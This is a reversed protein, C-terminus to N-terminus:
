KSLCEAHVGEFKDPATNELWARAPQLDKIYLDLFALTAHTTLAEIRAADANPANGGQYSGHTAGTIHLLYKDGPPSYEFPHRRSEPTEDSVQSIDETGSLVLTPRTFGQWSQENLSPRTTGQGSIIIYADFDTGDALSRGLRGARTFFRLGALTQATMAGASHGAIATRTTDILGPQQIATEIADTNQLIWRCDDIRSQLDVSRTGGPAFTRRLSDASEGAERRLKLSDTHAPHVVIYGHSALHESLSEFADTYGGMGHSFVVLPFPGPQQETPTPHRVLLPMPLQRGEREFRIEDSTNVEFPGATLDQTYPVPATQDPQSMPAPDTTPSQFALLAALVLHHM